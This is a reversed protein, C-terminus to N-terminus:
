NKFHQSEHFPKSSIKSSPLRKGESTLKPNSVSLTFHSRVLKLRGAETGIHADDSGGLPRDPWAGSKRKGIMGFNVTQYPVM